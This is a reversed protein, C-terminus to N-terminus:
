SRGGRSPRDSSTLRLKDPAIMTMDVNEANEEVTLRDFCDAMQFVMGFNRRAPALVLRTLPHVHARDVWMWRASPRAPATTAATV